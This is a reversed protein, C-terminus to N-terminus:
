AAATLRRIREVMSFFGNRRNQTLQGALGIREFVDALPASQIEASTRGDVLALVLAVLGKVIFADSDGEFHWVGDRLSAVLWVQSVCGRVRHEEIKLHEPMSPLKKGMEILYIYREELDDFVSFREVLEEADM